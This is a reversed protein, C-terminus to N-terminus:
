RAIKHKGRPVRPGSRQQKKPAKKIQRQSRKPPAVVRASEIVSVSERARSVRSATKSPSAAHATSQAIDRADGSSATEVAGSFASGEAVSFRPARIDGVVRAGPHLTLRGSAVINGVVAGAVSINRARLDAGVIASPEIFLDANTLSISGHVEGFVRLDEAGDIDGVVRSTESLVTPTAPPDKKPEAPQPPKTQAM